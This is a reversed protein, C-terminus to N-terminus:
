GDIQFDQQAPVAADIEGSESRRARHDTLKEALGEEQGTDKREVPPQEVYSAPCTERSQRELRGNGGEIEGQHFGLPTLAGEELFDYAGAPEDSNTDHGLAELM